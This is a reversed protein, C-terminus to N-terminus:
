RLITEVMRMSPSANVDSMKRVDENIIRRGEESDFFRQKYDELTPFKCIAMGDLGASGDTLPRDFSCQVYDWMGPHHKFTLPAHNDRWHADFQEHSLDARRAVGFMMAVGPTQEGDAWTRPHEMVRRFQTAYLGVTAVDALWPRLAEPDGTARVVAVWEGTHGAVATHLIVGEAPSAPDTALRDAAAAAADRDGCLAVVGTTTPYTDASM